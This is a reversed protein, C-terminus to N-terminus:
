VWKSKWFNAESVSEARTIFHSSLSNTAKPQMEPIVSILLGATESYGPNNESPFLKSWPSMLGSIIIQEILHQGYKMPKSSASLNINPTNVCVKFSIKLTITQPYFYISHGAPNLSLEQIEKLKGSCSNWFSLLSTSSSDFATPSYTGGSINRSLHQMWISCPNVHFNKIYRLEPCDQFSFFEPM